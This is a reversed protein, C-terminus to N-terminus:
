RKKISALVKDLIFILFINLMITGFFLYSRGPAYGFHIFRYAVTCSFLSCLIINKTLKFTVAEIASGMLSIVLMGFFLFTYSGFYFLFAIIGPLSIFHFQSQEVNKYFPNTSITKDYMSTGTNSFKEAWAEKWLDKGLNPYSSVAMVGEIGVWRDILVRSVGSFMKNYSNPEKVREYRLTRLYNVGLVSLLLLLGCLAGIFVKFRISPRIAKKNAIDNAGFLNATSNIIFGRSYMSVNSFLSEFLMLAAGVYPSNKIRLEQELILASFSSLGFTLLWTFIGPLPAPLITKAGWGRQYIAFHINAAAILVFTFAFLICVYIRYKKYFNSIGDLGLTTQLSLYSFFKQRILSAAAVAMCGCTSVILANDFSRGSGDFAGTAEVFDTTGLLGIRVSFKFWFGLWLFIGFFTDFFIRNKRFGMLLVGNFVLTFLTYVYWSGTYKIATVAFLVALVIFFLFRYVKSNM